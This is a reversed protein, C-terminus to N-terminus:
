GVAVVAEVEPRKVLERFDTTALEAGFQQAAAHAREPRRSCVAVARM